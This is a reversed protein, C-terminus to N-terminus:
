LDCGLTAGGGGTRALRVARVDEASAPAVDEGICVRAVRDNSIAWDEERLQGSDRAGAVRLVLRSRDQM